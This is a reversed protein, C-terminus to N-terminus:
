KPTEDTKVEVTETKKVEVTTTTETSTATSRDQLQSLKDLLLPPIPVGMKGLNELISVGEMAVFFYVVPMRFLAQGTLLDLLNAVIIVFFIGCKKILGKYGVRSSLEGSYFGQLVGSIFDMCVFVALIQLTPDFGGILFTILSAVIAFIGAFKDM